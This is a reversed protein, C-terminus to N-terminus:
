AEAGQTQERFWQELRMKEFNSNHLQLNAHVLLANVEYVSAQPLDLVQIHTASLKRTKLSQASLLSEASGADNVHLTLVGHQTPHIANLEAQFQVKRDKLLALHTAIKEVEDLQHSSILITCETQDPLSALLDRMEHIGAPDLGNLPEDLILLKPQGLLAHALALRQKMGLSFHRILRQTDVRLGVSDLVREIESNPLSKVLCAIKLFEFATLNPYASPAEVLCGLDRLITQRHSRIDKDLVRISGSDPQLLGVILRIATSKGEGNNGLFAFISKRPVQLDLGQLVQLHGFRKSVATMEIAFNAVSNEEKLVVICETDVSDHRGLCGLYLM